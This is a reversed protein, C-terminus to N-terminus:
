HSHGQALNIMAIGVAVLGMGLWTTLDLHQRYILASL